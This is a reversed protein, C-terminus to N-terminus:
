PENTFLGTIFRFLNFKYKVAEIKYSATIPIRAIEQGNNYFIQQGLREGQDIPAYYFRKLELASTINIDSKKLVVSISDKTDCQISGINGGVVPINYCEPTDSSLYVREYTNFGYDLMTIHDNWDDPANLTVAIFTLGDREAASVLCRGSAITYGTKVGITGNYRKLLKNHNILVRSGEYNNLPIVRKFTSVISRFDNNKLAYATLAALDRATTFHNEDYLGHPNTFNTDNLGLAAAKENMLEAFASVSQAVEIAIAAAADNASELMMAYLLEELSLKEGEYLYISSGTVGVADKSVSVTNSIDECELAVIATMIKTTSAMPRMEDANKAFLVDGSEAEILVACEASLSLAPENDASVYVPLLSVCLIFSLINIFKHM